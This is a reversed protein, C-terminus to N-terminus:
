SGYKAIEQLALEIREADTSQKDINHAGTLFMKVRGLLRPAAHRYLSNLVVVIEDATMAEGNPGLVTSSDDEDEPEGVRYPGIAETASLFDKLAAFCYDPTVIRLRGTARCIIGSGPITREDDPTDRRTSM